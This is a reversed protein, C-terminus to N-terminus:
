WKMESCDNISLTKKTQHIQIAYSLMVATVGLSIVISTLVLASPVPDVVSTLLESKIEDNIIPATKNTLYGISIMVLHIGTSILSFGIIMRIINSHTLVGWLGITFLFFGTILVINSLPTQLINEIV